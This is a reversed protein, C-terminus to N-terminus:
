AVIETRLPSCAPVVLRACIIPETTLEIDTVTISTLLPKGEFRKEASWKLTIARLLLCSHYGCYQVVVTHIIYVRQIAYLQACLQMSM